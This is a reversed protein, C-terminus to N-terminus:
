SGDYCAYLRCHRLHWPAFRIVLRVIFEVTKAADLLVERTSSHSQRLVAGMAIAWVLISIYNGSAIAHVPNDVAQLILNGFVEAIGGPTAVTDQAAQLTIETPWLFSAGVAIVAALFTGVLYLVIIPKVHMNGQSIDSQNAISSMVLVFVLIPAVGKLAM